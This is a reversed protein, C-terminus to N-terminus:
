LVHLYVPLLSFSSENTGQATEVGLEKAKWCGCYTMRVNHERLLSDPLDRARPGCFAKAYKARLFAAIVKSTVHKSFRSRTEVKCMHESKAKRFEYEESDGVQHARVRWDCCQKDYCEVVLYHKEYRTFKFRFIFNIAYISLAIRFDERSAFTRGVFMNDNEKSLNVHAAKADMDDDGFMPEIEDYGYVQDISISKQFTELFEKMAGVNSEKQMVKKKPPQKVFDDDGNDGYVVTEKGAQLPGTTHNDDDFEDDESESGTSLSFYDDSNGLFEYDDGSVLVEVAISTNVGNTSNEVAELAELLLEDSIGWESSTKCGDTSQVIAFQPNPPYVTTNVQVSSLLGAFYGGEVAALPKVRTQVISTSSSEGAELCKAITTCTKGAESTTDVIVSDGERFCVFLNVSKDSTRLSKFCRFQWDLFKALKM